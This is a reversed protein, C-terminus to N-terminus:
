MVDTAGKIAANKYLNILERESFKGNRISEILKEENSQSM